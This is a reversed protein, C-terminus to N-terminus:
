PGAIVSKPRRSGRIRMVAQFNNREAYERGFSGLDFTEHFREITADMFGGGYHHVPLTLSANWRENIGYHATVHLLSISGDFYFIDGPMGLLADVDEQTIPARIGRQELYDNVNGSMVFTNSASLHAELAWGKRVDHVAHDSLLDLRLISFPTLDRIRLPGYVEAAPVPGTTACLVVFTLLCAHRKCVNRNM